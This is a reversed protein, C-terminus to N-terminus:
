CYARRPSTRPLGTLQIKVPTNFGVARKLKGTLKGPTGIGAPAEVKADGTLELTLPVVSPLRRVPTTVSALVTKNDAGLLEAQLALDYPVLAVDGPVTIAGKVSSQDAPMLIDSSLRISREVAEVMQDPKNPVKVTKKPVLQSTILSVRVQGKVNDGRQVQVDAALPLGPVLAAGETYPTWALTIPPVPVIAAAPQTGLWPQYRYIASNDLARSAHFPRGKM